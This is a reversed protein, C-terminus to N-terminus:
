LGPTVGRSPFSSRPYLVTESMGGSRVTKHEPAANQEVIERVRERSEELVTKLSKEGFLSEYMTRSM